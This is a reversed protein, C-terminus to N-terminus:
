WGGSRAYAQEPWQGGGGSPESWENASWQGGAPAPAAPRWEANWQSSDARNWDAATSGWQEREEAARPGQCGKPNLAVRQAPNGTQQQSHGSTQQVKQGVPQSSSRTDTSKPAGVASNVPQGVVGHKAIPRVEQAAEKATGQDASWAQEQRPQQFMWQTLAPMQVQTGPIVQGAMIQMGPVM